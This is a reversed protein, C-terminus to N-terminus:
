VDATVIALREVLVAVGLARMSDAVIRLATDSTTWV